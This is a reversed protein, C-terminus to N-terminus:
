MGGPMIDRLNTPRWKGGDDKKAQDANYAALANDAEIIAANAIADGAGTLAHILGRANRLAEALAKAHDAM